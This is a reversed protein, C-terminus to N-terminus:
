HSQSQKSVAQFCTSFAYVSSSLEFATLGSLNFASRIDQFETGSMSCKAKQFNRKLMYTWMFYFESYFRNLQLGSRFRLHQRVVAIAIQVTNQQNVSPAHSEGRKGSLNLSNQVYSDTQVHSYTLNFVAELSVPCLSMHHLSESDGQDHFTPVRRVEKFEPSWFQPAISLQLDSKPYVFFQITDQVHTESSSENRRHICM